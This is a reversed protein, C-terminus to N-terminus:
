LLTDWNVELVWINTVSLHEPHVNQDKYFDIEGPQYCQTSVINPHCRDSLIWAEFVPFNFSTEKSLVEGFDDHCVMESQGPYMLENNNDKLKDKFKDNLDNYTGYSNFYNIKETSPKCEVTVGKNKALQRIRPLM